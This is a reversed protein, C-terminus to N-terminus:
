LSQGYRAMATAVKRMRAKISAPTDPHLYEDHDLFEVAAEEWKGERALRMATPSQQVDGRYVAQMLEGQLWEPLQDLNPMAAELINKHAKFTQDFTMDEYVGVQGVGSTINGKTDPYRGDVYGEEEVVRRELYTLDRGEM